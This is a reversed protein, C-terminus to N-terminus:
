RLHVVDLATKQSSKEVLQHICSLVYNIPITPVLDVATLNLDLVTPPKVVGVALLIKKLYGSVCFFM